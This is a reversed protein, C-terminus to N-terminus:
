AASRRTDRDTFRYYVLLAAMVVAMMAMSLASGLPKGTASDVLAKVQNGIMLFKAGGLMDSTIYAGLAPIFVLVCGAAIGPMTAPIMVRLFARLDNAGLDAAAEMLRFNFKEISTYMPLIMFPLYGYVLGTYVAIPTFMLQLPTDTLRLYDVVLSNILGNENMMFAIAYTRVVFNTWFPIVVLMLFFNRWQKPRTAIFYAMPYGILACIITTTLATGVSRILIGTYTDDAVKVYNDITIPLTVQFRSSPTLFSYAIVVLLPLVFFLLLWIAGPLVLIRSMVRNRRESYTLTRRSM